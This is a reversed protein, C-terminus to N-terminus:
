DARLHLVTSNMTPWDRICSTISFRGSYKGAPLSVPFNANLLEEKNKIMGLNLNTPINSIISDKYYVTLWIHLTDYPAKINQLMGDDTIIKVPVNVAGNEIKLKSQPIIRIRSFSFYREIERGLFIGKATYISDHYYDQKKGQYIAYARKNMFSEELPWFNYNNRRYDVTNLSFTTEGSYFWYKAARQYSDTFFVPRGNAKQKIATAWADNRLYEDGKVKVDPFFDVMTYLRICFVLAITVVALRSLWKRVNFKNILFQ